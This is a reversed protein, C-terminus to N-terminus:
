SSSTGLNDSEGLIRPKEKDQSSYIKNNQLYERAVEWIPKGTEIQNVSAWGSIVYNKNPDILNGNSLRLNSIRKGIINKPTIDYILGATRVMDGGQQMYPDPNFINDAVDELINKLTSGNLERRYTNPYTIATQNYIDSMKIDTNKPLSTGWRFGPSLSIESGMVSNLSKCLLSDFSGTFTGRRYLEHNSYGIVENLTREFPKTKKQIFRTMNGSPQIKNSFIPLLNYRYDFSNKSHIDLDLVSLFKGSCGSNIIITRHRENIIEIPKPIVDHTHGGLIIDIGKVRSALKKDVDVGNHSLLVIIDPKDNQNIRNVLEQLENERIGFTLNNVFRGPNAIPTYPFAQGIIAIRHNSIKKITYPKQFHGFDDYAEEGDFQAEETLSINHAVFEGKFKKINKIFQSQGYTFEWHGTMVDVGLINSSEVMDEGNTFLSLGSGQWTDGGDLLLAKGDAENRLNDVVTKLYAYGGLKGYQSAFESFNLPTFAYKLFNNNISYYNLFNESVLHPPMNKNSGVGLNVDPERFYIPELQAHTDTIHLLRIDGTKPLSYNIFADTSRANSPVILNYMYGIMLAKIFERRNM